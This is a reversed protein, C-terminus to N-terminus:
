ELVGRSGIVTQIPLHVNQARLEDWLPLQDVSIAVIPIQIGAGLIMSSPTLASTVENLTLFMPDSM